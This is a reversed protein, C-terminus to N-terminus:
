EEVLRELERAATRPLFLHRPGDVYVGDSQDYSLSVLAETGLERVRVRDVTGLDIERDPDFLYLAREDPDIAGTSRLFAALVIAVFAIPVTLAAAGNGVGGSVLQGLAFIATGMVVSGVVADDLHGRERATADADLATRGDSGTGPLRAAIGAVIRGTEGAIGIALLTAGVGALAAVFVTSYGLEAIVAYFRFIAVLSIAALFTGVGLAWLVRIPRSTAADRRWRIASSENM